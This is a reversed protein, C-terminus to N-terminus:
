NKRSPILLTVETVLTVSRIPALAVPWSGEYIREIYKHPALQLDPAIRFINKSLPRSCNVQWLRALLDDIDAQM